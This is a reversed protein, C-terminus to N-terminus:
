DTSIEYYYIAHYGKTLRLEEIPWDSNEDIWEQRTVKKLILCPYTTLTDNGKADTMRINVIQKPEMDVDSALIM